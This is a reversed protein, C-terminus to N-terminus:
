DKGGIQFKVYNRKTPVICHITMGFDSFVEQCDWIHVGM